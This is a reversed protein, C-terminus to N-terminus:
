KHKTENSEGIFNSLINDWKKSINKVIHINLMNKEIFETRLYEIISCVFFICVIVFLLIFIYINSSYWKETEVFYDWVFTRFYNHDHILLVAFTYTAIRNILSSNPIKIDKALFFICFGAIIILLSSESGSISLIFDTIQNNKGFLSLYNSELLLFYISAVICGLLSKDQLIKIPWKKLNLMLIYCFIFLGIESFIQQYYSNLYGIIQSIVQAYFTIILLYRAAKKQLKETAIAIFPLLLYFLLYSSAFGHSNGAIPLLSSLLKKVTVGGELYGSLLTFIFSYFFVMGWTKIFKIAKFKSNDVFFWMSIAIFTIFCIKGVPVFILSVMKNINEDTELIGGHVICHHGIILFMCIIRLLEINSDRVPVQASNETRLRRKRSICFFTLLFSGVGVFIVNRVWEPSKQIPNFEKIKSTISELTFAKDTSIFLSTYSIPHSFYVDLKSAGASASMSKIIIQNEAEDKVYFTFNVSESIKKAFDIHLNNIPFETIDLQLASNESLPTYVSDTTDYDIFIIEKPSYTAIEQNSYFVGNKFIIVFALLFLSWMSIFKIIKKNM